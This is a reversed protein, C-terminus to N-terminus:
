EGGHGTLQWPEVTAVAPVTLVARIGFVDVTGDQAIPGGIGFVLHGWSCLVILSHICGICDM